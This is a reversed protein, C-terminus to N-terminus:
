VTQRQKKKKYVSRIVVAELVVVLAALVVDGVALGQRWTFSSGQNESAYARSNVVTYLINHSANRMALVGTASTTDVLNNTGADINTLMLDSGGRIARDANMAGGATLFYDTIVM